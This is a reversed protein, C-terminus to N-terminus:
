FHFYIFTSERMYGGSALLSVFVIAAVAMIFSCLRIPQWPFRINENVEIVRDDLVPSDNQLWVYINPLWLVVIWAFVILVLITISSLGFDAFKFLVKFKIGFGELFGLHDALSRPLSVGNLGVMSKAISFLQEKTQCRFLIGGFLCVCFTGLYGLIPIARKNSLVPRSRLDKWLYLGVIITGNLFGWFIFNWALGHWFGSLCFTILTAVSVAFRTRHISKKLPIKRLLGVLPILCYDALFRYLTIHWRLFLQSVSHSKYPSNFNIPLRIGFMRAIGIAMDSYASFDFYLQLYFAMSGAWAELMSVDYGLAVTNFVANSVLALHDAIFVKKLAGLIFITSGVVLNEYKFLFTTRQKLQPVIEQYRVIPGAILQPFFSIFLAYRLFNNESIKGRYTDVLFAIQQLTFFSLGLPILIDMFSGQSVVLTNSSLTFFGACKYYFLLGINVIIGSTLMWRKQKGSNTELGIRRGLFYNFVVSSVLLLINASIGFYYFVLSACLLWLRAFNTNAKGIQYYGVLVVPLFLFIFYPSYFLM